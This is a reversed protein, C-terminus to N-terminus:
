FWKSIFTGENKKLFFKKLESDFLLLSLFFSIIFFISNIALKLFLKNGFVNDFMFYTSLLCLLSIVIIRLWSILLSKNINIIDLKHMRYSFMSFDIIVTVILTIWLVGVVGNLSAGIPIFILLVIGKFINIRSNQKIDGLAYSMNSLFYGILGFFFNVVLLLSIQLGGFKSSDIWLSILQQYCLISLCSIAVTFILFVKFQNHIQKKTADINQGFSNSIGPMLAVSYRGILGYLMKIPRRNIEFITILHPAIFRPLIVLDINNSFASIVRAVATFSFIKVFRKFHEYDIILIKTLESKTFFIIILNYTALYIARVVNAIAVSMLGWGLFLLVLNVILYLINSTIYSIAVQKARLMGQNVGALAFTILTIGVALISVLFANNLDEFRALNIVLVYELLFYFVLGVIIALVFTLASSILGSGITKSIETFDRKGYLVAIKQQLIDGVGPDSLTLWALINGTAWWLGLEVENIYKVYFPLLIFANIMNTIVYGYQFVFNWKLAKNYM